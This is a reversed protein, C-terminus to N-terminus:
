LGTRYTVSLSDTVNAVRAARPYTATSLAQVALPGSNSDTESCIANCYTM